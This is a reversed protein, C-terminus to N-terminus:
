KKKNRTKYATLLFTVKSGALEPSVIAMKGDLLMEFNGRDNKRVMEGREIVKSIDALFTKIDIGQEGRRKIIHELGRKEDGWILTINGIDDRYFAGKVHGQQEELLKDIAEQGKVGTFEKGMLADFPTQKKGSPFKGSERMADALSQGDKIFVRRGGITRWVGGGETM